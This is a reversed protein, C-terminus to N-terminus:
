ILRHSKRRYQGKRSKLDHLKKAIPIFKNMNETISKGCKKAPLNRYIYCAKELLLLEELKIITYNKIQKVFRLVGDWANVDLGIIKGHTTRKNASINQTKLFQIINLVHQKKYCAIEIKPSIKINQPRRYERYIYLGATGEGDFFPGLYSWSIIM